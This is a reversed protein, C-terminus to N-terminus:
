KWGVIWDVDGKFLRKLELSDLRIENLWSDWGHCAYQLFALKEGDVSLHLSSIGMEEVCYFRNIKGGHIEKTCLYSTRRDEYCRSEAFVLESGDPTVCPYSYSTKQDTNDTLMYVERSILDVQYLNSIGEISASYVITKGDPTFEPDNIVGWQIFDSDYDGKYGTKYTVWDQLGSGDLNCTRLITTDKLGTVFAVQRYDPSYKATYGGVGKVENLSQNRLNYEILSYGTCKFKGELFKYGCPAIDTFYHCDPSEFQSESKRYTSDPEISGLTVRTSSAGHSYYSFRSSIYFIQDHERTLEKLCKDLSPVLLSNIVYPSGNGSIVLVSPSGGAGYLKALEGCSDSLCRMEITNRNVFDAGFRSPENEDVAYFFTHSYKDRMADLKRIEIAADGLRNNFFCFVYNRGAVPKSFTFSNGRGFLFPLSFPKFAPSVPESATLTMFIGLIFYCIYFKTNM